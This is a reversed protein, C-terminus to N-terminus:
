KRFYFDTSARCFSNMSKNDSSLAVLIERERQELTKTISRFKELENEFQTKLKSVVRKDETKVSDKLQQAIRKSLNQVFVHLALVLHFHQVFAFCFAIPQVKCSERTSSLKQRLESGDKKQGLQGNMKDLQANKSAFEEILKIIETAMEPDSKQSRLPETISNLQAVRRRWDFHQAKRTGKDSKMVYRQQRM